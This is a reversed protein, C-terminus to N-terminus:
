IQKKERKLNLTELSAASGSHDSESNKSDNTGIDEISASEQKGRSAERKHTPKQPSKNFLKSRDVIVFQRDKLLAM